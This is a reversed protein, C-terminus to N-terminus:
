QSKEPKAVIDGLDKVEGPKVSVDRIFADFGVRVDRSDNLWFSYQRGPVLGKIHFRGDKELQRSEGVLGQDEVTAYETWPQGDAGVVRGVLEGWPELTINVPGLDEGKVILRGVLHNADQRVMIRRVKGPNLGVVAHSTADPPLNKEWYGMDKLGAISAGALPKGDPGLVNLTLSRGPDLLLDQTLTRTGDAPDIEALTHYNTPIPHHPYCRLFGSEDVRKSGEIGVAFRYSDTWARATLLSPGPMAVIRFTGDVDTSEGHTMARGFGPAQKLFPNDLYVFYEVVARVPRGTSKDLVRGTVYVGRKLGIDLRIPDAGPPDPVKLQARLYPLSEDPPLRFEAKRVQRYPFDSPSLALIDKGNRSARGTLRYRGQADTIASIYEMPNGLSREGHIMIGALPQGTDRDTVTGEVSRAPAAIHAFSNGYITIPEDERFNKYEPLRITEGPRTRVRVHVTEIAPGEIHLEVVRERGIGTIRFRGDAASRAPPVPPPGVSTTLNRSLFKGDATYVGGLEKLGALWKTLDEDDSAQVTRVAIEVGAVPKGELDLIQGEIPVDDRALRITPEQGEAITPTKVKRGLSAMGFAFGEARAILTAYQWATGPEFNADFEAIPVDFKFRGDVGSAARTSRNSPDKLGYSVLSIKAGEFPKGDPDLVRGAFTVPKTRDEEAKSALPKISPKTQKSVPMERKMAGDNGAQALGVPVTHLGVMGLAVLLVGVTAIGKASEAVLGSLTAQALKAATASIAGTAVIKGAPMAVTAKTLANIWIRPVAATSEKALAETLLVLSLGVGRRGLRAHLLERAGALRRRITAEGLGLEIAAQVHTRGELYCLVIPRRYKEPLRAVEEHLAAKWDADTTSIPAAFREIADGFGHERNRRRGAEIRSQVAIRYAVRHLWAGLADRGRISGAKRILVLFTAQFADEVEADKGIVARCVGLVMPGHREVLASFAVGDGRTVFRELLQSDALGTVTGEDFLRSIQRMAAGLRAGAM